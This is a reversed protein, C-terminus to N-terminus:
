NAYNVSLFKKLTESPKLTTKAMVVDLMIDLDVGSANYENHPMVAIKELLALTGKRMSLDLDDDEM